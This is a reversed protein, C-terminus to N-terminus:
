KLLPYPCEPHGVIKTTVLVNVTGGPYFHVAFIGIGHEAYRPVPVVRENLLGPVRGYQIRRVTVKM